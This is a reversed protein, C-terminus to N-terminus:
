AVGKDISMGQRQVVCNRGKNKAQYLAIDAENYLQEFKCGAEGVVIGISITINVRHELPSFVNQMALLRLRQMIEKASDGDTDPLLIGFEEGGIRGFLDYERLTTRIMDALETLVVDGAQHGYEDNVKKFYDIDLLCFAVPTDNRSSRNLESNVQAIFSRRNSIQTLEDTSALNSLQHSHEYLTHELVKQKTINKAQLLMEGNALTQESMLYWRGDVLDVEFLRFERSRRKSNAVLLWQDIDDTNIKPGNNAIFAAKLIQNFSMGVIQEYNVFMIEAFAKNCGIVIDEASFIAYGDQTVDLFDGIRSSLTLFGSEM